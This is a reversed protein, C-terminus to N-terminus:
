FRVGVNLGGKRNYLFHNLVVGLGMILLAYLPANAIYWPHNYGAEYGPPLTEMTTLSAPLHKNNVGYFPNPAEAPNDNLVYYRPHSTITLLCFLMYVFVVGSIIRVLDRGVFYDGIKRGKVAKRNKKYNRM